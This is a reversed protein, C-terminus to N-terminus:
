GSSGQDWSNSRFIVWSVNTISIQFVFKISNYECHFDKSRACLSHRIVNCKLSKKEIVPCGAEPDRGRVIMESLFTQKDTIHGKETNFSFVSKRCCKSM